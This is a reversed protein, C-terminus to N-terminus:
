LRAADKKSRIELSRAGRQDSERTLVVRWCCKAGRCEGAGGAAARAGCAPLAVAAGGILAMFERRVMVSALLCCTPM